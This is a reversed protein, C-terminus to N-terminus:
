RYWVEMETISWSSYSGCLSNSSCGSYSHGASCYGTTMNSDVKWDHGGGFTPGYSSNACGCHQSTTCNWRQGNTLSFLFNSSGSNYCGASWSLGAYGGMLNGNDMQTITM